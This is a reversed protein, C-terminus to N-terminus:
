TSTTTPMATIAVAPDTVVLEAPTVAGVSTALMWGDGPWFTPTAIGTVTVNACAIALWPAASRDMLNVEGAVGAPDNM